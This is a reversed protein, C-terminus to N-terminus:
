LFLSQTFGLPLQDRPKTLRDREPTLRRSKAFESIDTELLQLPLDYIQNWFRCRGGRWFDTLRRKRGSFLTDPSAKEDM